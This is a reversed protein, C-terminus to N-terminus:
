PEYYGKKTQISREIIIFGSDNLYKNSKLNDVVKYIDDTFFPLIQWYLTMNIM